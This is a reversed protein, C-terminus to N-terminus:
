KKLMEWASSSIAPETLDTNIRVTKIGCGIRTKNVVKRSLPLVRAVPINHKCIEIEEGKEVLSIFSSLNTKFDAINATKMVM